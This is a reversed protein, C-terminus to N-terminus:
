SQTDDTYSGQFVSNELYDSIKGIASELIKDIIEEAFYSVVDEIVAAVGFTSVEAAAKAVAIATITGWLSNFGNCDTYPKFSMLCEDIYKSGWQSSRGLAWYMISLKNYTSNDMYGTDLLSFTKVNMSIRNKLDLQLNTYAIYEVSDQDEEKRTFTITTSDMRNDVMKIFETGLRGLGFDSLFSKADQLVTRHKKKQYKVLDDFFKTENSVSDKKFEFDKEYITNSIDQSYSFGQSRAVVAMRQEKDFYSNIYIFGYMFLCIIPTCFVFEIVGSGKNSLFYNNGRKSM